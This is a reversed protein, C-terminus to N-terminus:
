AEKTRGSFEHDHGEGASHIASDRKHEHLQRDIRAMTEDRPGIWGRLSATIMDQVKAGHKDADEAHLRIVDLWSGLTHSGSQATTGDELTAPIRAQTLLKNLKALFEADTMGDELSDIFRSTDFEPGIDTKGSERGQKTDAHHVFGSADGGDWYNLWVPTVGLAVYHKGILAANAYHGDSFPRGITPQALEVGWSRDNLYASHWAVLDDAVVRVRELESLVWQASAGNPNIFWNLTSSLEEADTKTAIGSRTAHMVVIRPRRLYPGSNNGNITRTALTM